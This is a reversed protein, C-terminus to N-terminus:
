PPEIPLIIQPEYPDELIEDLLPLCQGFIGLM